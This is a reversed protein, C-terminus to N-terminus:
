RAGVAGYLSLSARSLRLFSYKARDVRDTRPRAVLEVSLSFLFGAGPGAAQFGYRDM